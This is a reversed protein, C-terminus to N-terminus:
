KESRYNRDFFANHVTLNDELYVVRLYKDHEEIYIWYRIRGDEQIIKDVYDTKAKICWETKIYPRKLLVQEQFYITYPM